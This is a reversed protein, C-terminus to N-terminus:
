ALLTYLFLVEVVRFKYGSLMLFTQFILPLVRFSWFGPIPLLLFLGLWQWIGQESLPIPISFLFCSGAMPPRTSWLCLFCSFHPLSWHDKQLFTWGAEATLSSKSGTDAVVFYQLPLPRVAVRLLLPSQWDGCVKYWATQFCVKQKRRLQLQLHYEKNLDALDQLKKRNEETNELLTAYILNGVTRGENVDFAKFTKCGDFKAYVIYWEM